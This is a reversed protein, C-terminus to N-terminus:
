MSIKFNEGGVYIIYAGQPMPIATEGAPLEQIKYVRGGFTVIYARDAQPTRIHLRGESSWVKLSQDDVDEVGVAPDPEIGTVVIEVDGWVTVSYVGNADPTIAPGNARVLLNDAIYGEEIEITFRFTGGEIVSTSGLPKITAGEVEPLTVDYYSPEPEPEPDPEPEPEVPESVTVTTYAALTTSVTKAEEGEGTTEERTILCRYQGADAASVVLQDTQPATEASRLLMAAQEAEPVDTWVGDVLRQWQFTVTVNVEVNATATLTVTEGEQVTADAIPEISLAASGEVSTVLGTEDRLTGENTITTGEALTAGETAQIVLTGENTVEGLSNEGSLTLVTSTGAAVTTTPTTVGNLSVNITDSESSGVIDVKGVEVNTLTSDKTISKAVAEAIITLNETVSPISVKGTASDYYDHDRRDNIIISDPLTYLSTDTPMLTFELAEGQLVSDIKNDISLHDLKYEVSRMASIATATITLDTMVFPISVVGTTSDYSFEEAGDVDISDPLLCKKAPVLTFELAEGHAVSDIEAEVSLNALEYTVSHKITVTDLVLTSSLMTIPIRYGDKDLLQFTVRASESETKMKSILGFEYTTNSKLNLTFNFSRVPAGPVPLTSKITDGDYVLALTEDPHDVIDIFMGVNKGEFQGVDGTRMTFPVPGEKINGMIPNTITVPVMNVVMFRCEFSGYCVDGAENYVKITYPFTGEESAVVDLFFAIVNGYSGINTIRYGDQKIVGRGEEFILENDSAHLADPGYWVKVKDTDAMEIVFQYNQDFSSPLFSHQAGQKRNTGIYTEEFPNDVLEVTINQEQGWAALSACTLLAAVLSLRWVVEQLFRKM